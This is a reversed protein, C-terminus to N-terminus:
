HIMGQMVSKVPLHMLHIEEGNSFFLSFDTINDGVNLPKTLGILMVHLGGPKLVIESKAPIEIHPIQQMKMMGKEMIHEHLELTKASSSTVRQLYLAQDSKNQIKMFSASNPLNPPVARVYADTIEIVGAWLTSSALLLTTVFTHKLM